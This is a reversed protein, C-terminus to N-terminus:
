MNNLKEKILKSVVSMDARTGVVSSVEKIVKGM